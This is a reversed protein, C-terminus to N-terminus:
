LELIHGPHIRGAMLHWIALWNGKVRGWRDVWPEPRPTKVINAIINRGMLSYAAKRSITGKRILYIPNAIQSYGLKVGQTRAGKVGRHVGYFATSRVLRGKPLLQNAFDVDEQWAYLPLQEDFRIDGVTSLRYAMNCGYLGQKEMTIRAPAPPNQDHAAVLDMAETRSLGPGLIGDALLTGEVGAIEPHNQFFDVTGEIAYKSAIYDDDYFVLYDFKGLSAELGRNRQKPLGKDGIIVEAGMRKEEPPLDHASTVTLIVHDPRRTQVKLSDLLDAVADPRGVSAIVVVIKPESM